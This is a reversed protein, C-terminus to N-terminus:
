RRVETESKPNKIESYEVDIITTKTENIASEPTKAPTNNYRWRLYYSRLVIFVTLIASSIFVFLILAAGFWIAFAIFMALVLFGIISSFIDNINM